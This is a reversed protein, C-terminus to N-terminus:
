VGGPAGDVWGEIDQRRGATRVDAVHVEVGAGGGREGAGLAEAGRGDGADREGGTTRAAALAPRTASDAAVLRRPVTVSVAVIGGRIMVCLLM